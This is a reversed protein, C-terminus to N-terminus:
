RNKRIFIPKARYFYKGDAEITTGCDYIGLVENAHGLMLPGTSGDANHTYLSMISGIPRHLGVGWAKLINTLLIFRM